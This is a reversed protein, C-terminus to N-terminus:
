NVRVQLLSLFSHKNIDMKIGCFCMPSNNLFSILILARGGILIRTLGSGFPVSSRVPSASSNSGELLESIAYIRNFCVSINRLTFQQIKLFHQFVFCLVSNM